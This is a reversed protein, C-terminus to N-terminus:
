MFIRADWKIKSKFIVTIVDQSMWSCCLSLLVNFGSVQSDVIIDFYFLFKKFLWM